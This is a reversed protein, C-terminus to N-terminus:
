DAGSDAGDVRRRQQDHDSQGSHLSGSDRNWKSQRLRDAASIDSARRIEDLEREAELKEHAIALLEEAEEATTRQAGYAESRRSAWIVFVLICIFLFAVIGAVMM